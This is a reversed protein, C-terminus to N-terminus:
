YYIAKEIPSEFQKKGEITKKVAIQMSANIDEFALASFVSSSKAVDKVSFPQYGKDKATGFTQRYPIDTDTIDRMMESIMVEVMSSPVGLNVDNMKASEKFINHLETYPTSKDVKGSNFFDMFSITSEIEQIHNLNEILVDGRELGLRYYKAEPVKPSIQRTVDTKSTFNLIMSVPINIKYLKGKATESGFAELFFMGTTMCKDGLWNAMGSDFFQAPVYINLRHTNVVITSKVKKLFDIAM